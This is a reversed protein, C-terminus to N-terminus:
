FMLKMVNFIYYAPMIQWLSIIAEFKIFVDYLVMCHMKQWIWGQEDIIVKCVELAKNQEGSVEMYLIDTHQVKWDYDTTGANKIKKIMIMMAM